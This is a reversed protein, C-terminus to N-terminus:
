FGQLLINTHFDTEGASFFAFSKNADAPLFYM